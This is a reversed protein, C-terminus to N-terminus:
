GPTHPVSTIPESTVTMSPDYRSVIDHFFHVPVESFSPTAARPDHMLTQASQRGNEQRRLLAYTASDLHLASARAQSLWQEFHDPAVVDVAFKQDQFGMGNFQTNEGLYRGPRDALLHLRTVMGAMAYIQSGLSPILFSQMTADSTLRFVVERGQPLVLHDLSAVHADPYIFLWKWNLAVVDITMAPEDHIARDPSYRREPGWVLLSFAIVVIAPFGWVLFELPLAFDWDPRFTAKSNSARYHWLCFPVGILVPLIVLTLGGVLLGFWYRQLAAIPGAPDLFSIHDTQCGALLCLPVAMTLTLRLAHLGQRLASTTQIPRPM